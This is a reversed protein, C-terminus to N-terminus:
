KPEIKIKLTPISKLSLNSHISKQSLILIKLESDFKPESNIKQIWCQTKPVSKFNKLKKVGFRKKHAIFRNKPVSDKKTNHISNQTCLQIKLYSNIKLNFNAIKAM